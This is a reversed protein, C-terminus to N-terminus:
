DCGLNTTNGAIGSWAVNIRNTVAARVAGADGSCAGGTVQAPTTTNTTSSPGVIVNNSQNGTMDIARVAYYYSGTIGSIYYNLNTTSIVNTLNAVSTGWSVTYSAVDPDGGSQWKLYTGNCHGQCATFNVPANPDDLDIDVVGKMGMNRPTVDTQ